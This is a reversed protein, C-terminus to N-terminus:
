GNTRQAMVKRCTRPVVMAALASTSTAAQPEDEDDPEDAGDAAGVEAAVVAGALVAAGALMAEVDAGAPLVVSARALEFKPGTTM